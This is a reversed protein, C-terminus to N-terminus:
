YKKSNQNYSGRTSLRVLLCFSNEAAKCFSSTLNHAIAYFSELGETHYYKTSNLTKLKHRQSRAELLSCAKILEARLVADHLSVGTSEKFRQPGSGVAKNLFYLIM